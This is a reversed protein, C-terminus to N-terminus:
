GRIYRNLAEVDAPGITYPGIWQIDITAPGAQAQKRLEGMIADINVNEGDILGLATVIPNGALMRFLPEAKASAIGAIGRLLWAKWSGALKSAMENEIYALLGQIVRTYHIM